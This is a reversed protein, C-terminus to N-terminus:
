DMRWTVGEGSPLPPVKNVGASGGWCFLKFNNTLGCTFGPTDAAGGGAVDVWTGGAPPKLQGARNDGACRIGFKNTVGCLHYNGAAIKLWAEGLGLTTTALACPAYKASGVCTIKGKSSLAASFYSGTVVQVWRAGPETPYAPIALQGASADGVCRISTNSPASDVLCAHAAGAAVKAWKLGVPPAPAKCQGKSLDGWGKVAKTKTIGCCFADGCDFADFLDKPPTAQGKSNAGWCVARGAPQDIGCSHSKGASSLKM